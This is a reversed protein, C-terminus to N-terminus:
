VLRSIDISKQFKFRPGIMFITDLMIWYAKNSDNARCIFLGFTAFDFICFEIIIGYTQSTNLFFFFFISASELRIATVTYSINSNYRWMLHVFFFYQPFCHLVHEVFLFMSTRGSVDVRRQRIIRTSLLCVTKAACLLM